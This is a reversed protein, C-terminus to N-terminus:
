QYSIDTAYADLNRTFCTLNSAGVTSFAQINAKSAQLHPQDPEVINELPCDGNSDRFLCTM